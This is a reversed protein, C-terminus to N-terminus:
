DAGSGDDGPHDRDFWYPGTVTVGAPTPSGIVWRANFGSFKGTGGSYVCLGHWPNAAPPYYYTCHGTITSGREDTARITVPSNMVGLVIHADTYYANAGVLSKISAQTFLCYGGPNPPAITVFPVRCIKMGTFARTEAALASQAGLVALLAVGTVVAIFLRMSRLLQFQM